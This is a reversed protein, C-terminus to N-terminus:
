PREEKAKKLSERDYYHIFIYQLRGFALMKLDILSRELGWETSFELKTFGYSGSDGAANERMSKRRAAGEVAEEEWVEESLSPAGYQQSLWDKLEDHISIMGNITKNSYGLVRCSEIFYSGAVLRNELFFYNITCGYERLSGDYTAIRDHEEILDATEVSSVRERSMGWRTNRFDFEGADLRVFLLFFLPLFSFGRRM